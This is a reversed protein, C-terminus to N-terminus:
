NGFLMLFDYNQSLLKQSETSCIRNLNIPQWKMLKTNEKIYRYSAIYIKLLSLVGL